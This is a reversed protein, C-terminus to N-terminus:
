SHKTKLILKLALYTFFMLPGLFILGVIGSYVDSGDAQVIDFPKTLFYWTGCASVLMLGLLMLSVKFTSKNNALALPTPLKICGYISAGLSSIAFLGLTFNAGDTWYDLGPPIMLIIVILCSKLKDIIKM